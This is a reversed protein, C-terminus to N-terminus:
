KENEMNVKNLNSNLVDLITEFDKEPIKEIINEQQKFRFGAYSSLADFLKEGTKDEVLVDLNGRILIFDQWFDNQGSSENLSNLSLYYLNNSRNLVILPSNINEQFGLKENLKEDPYFNNLDIGKVENKDKSDNESKFIFVVRSVDEYFEVLKSERLEGDMFISLPLCISQGISMYLSELEMITKKVFIIGFIKSEKDIIDFGLLCPAEVRTPQGHFYLEFEIKQPM